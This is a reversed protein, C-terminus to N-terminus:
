QLDIHAGCRRGEAFFPRESANQPGYFRSLLRGIQELYRLAVIEPASRQEIAATTGQAAGSSETVMCM